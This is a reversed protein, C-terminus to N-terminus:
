AVHALSSQLCMVHRGTVTHDKSWSAPSQVPVRIGEILQWTLFLISPLNTWVSSTLRMMEGQNSLVVVYDNFDQDQNFVQM